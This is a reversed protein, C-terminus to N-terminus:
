LIKLKRNFLYILYCCHYFAVSEDNTTQIRETIMVELQPFISKVQMQSFLYELSRNVQQQGFMSDVTRNSYILKYKPDVIMVGQIIDDFIRMIAEYNEYVRRKELFDKRQYREFIYIICFYLTLCQAVVVTIIRWLMEEQAIPILFFIVQAIPGLSRLWWNTIAYTTSFCLLSYTWVLLWLGPKTIPALGARGIFPFPQFAYYILFIDLFFNIKNLHKKCYRFKWKLFCLCGLLVYILVTKTIDWPTPATVVGVVAWTVFVSGLNTIAMALIMWLRKAVQLELDHDYAVSHGKKKFRLFIDM